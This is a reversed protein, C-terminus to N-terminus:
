RRGGFKRRLAKGIKIAEFGMDSNFAEVVDRADEWSEGVVLPPPANREETGAAVREWFQNVHERYAEDLSLLDNDRQLREMRELFESLKEIM